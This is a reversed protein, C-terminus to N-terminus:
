EEANELDLDIVDVNRRVEGFEYIEDFRGCIEFHQWMNQCKLIVRQMQDLLYMCFVDNYM